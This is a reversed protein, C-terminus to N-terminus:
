SLREHRWGFDKRAITMARDFAPKTRIFGYNGEAVKDQYEPSELIKKIVRQVQKTALSSLIEVFEWPLALNAGHKDVYSEINKDNLLAQCILAWVIERARTVFGYKSPGKETIQRSLHGLKMQVKYCLVIKRADARLRHTGFTEAYQKEDEFVDRIHALRTLQGDTVLFTKALKILEIPRPDTIDESQREQTDMASFSHAQRQYYVGIDRFHDALDLQIQDNAHLLSPDVPNQRNNSITVQTIFDQDAGEIVRCLVTMKELDDGALKALNTGNRDAFVKYTSVTQAGNLLRPVKLILKGNLHEVHQASLTVGSHNFAFAEPQRTKDILTERFAKLLARNVYGEYPLAFRINRELFRRGLTDHITHLDALPVFGVLMKIDAPGLHEATDSINVEFKDPPRNSKIEDFRLFRVILPVPRGFYDELAWAREEIADRLSSLGQSREAAVPDGRFVFDVFVQEIEDRANQIIRRAHDIIPQSDAVARSDEFLAPMAVSSIRDM